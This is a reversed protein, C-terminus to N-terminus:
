PFSGFLARIQLIQALEAGWPIEVPMAVLRTGADNDGRNQCDPLSEHCRVLQDLCRRADGMVAALPQWRDIDVTEVDLQLILVAKEAVTGALAREALNEVTPALRQALRPLVREALLRRLVDALLRQIGDQDAVVDLGRGHHV